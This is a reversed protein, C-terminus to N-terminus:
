PIGVYFPESKSIERGTNPDRVKFNVVYKGPKAPAAFWFLMFYDKLPSRSFDVKNEALESTQQGNKGTLELVKENMDRLQLTCNLRTLYGEVGNQATPVCPVNGLEVYLIYIEGPKFKTGAPLPDYHGFNKVSRCFATKDISLSSRRAFIAAASEFKEKLMGADNPGINNINSQSARVVAPILQLMLEQNPRDLEKLIEVADEHKGAIFARMAALLPEEKEKSMVVTPPMVPKVPPDEEMGTSNAVVEDPENNLNLPVTQTKQLALREGPGNITRTVAFDRNAPPVAKTPLPEGKTSIRQGRIGEERTLWAAAGGGSCAPLALLVMAVIGIEWRRRSM